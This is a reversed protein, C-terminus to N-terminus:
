GAKEAEKLISLIKVATSWDVTQNISLWARDDGVQRIDLAPMRSETSPLGKVPILDAATCELAKCLKALFLPSPLNQASVYKQVNDRGM